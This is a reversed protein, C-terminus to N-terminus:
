FLVVKTEKIITKTINMTIASLRRQPRNREDESCQAGNRSVEMAGVRATGAARRAFASKDDSRAFASPRRKPRNREDESRQAGNRSVEM